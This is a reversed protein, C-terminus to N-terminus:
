ERWFRRQFLPNGPYVFCHAEDHAACFAYTQKIFTSEAESGKTGEGDESKLATLHFHMDKIYFCGYLYNYQAEYAVYQLVLTSWLEPVPLATQMKEWVAWPEKEHFGVLQCTEFGQLLAHFWLRAITQLRKQLAEPITRGQRALYSAELTFTHLVYNIFASGIPPINLSFSTRNSFIATYAKSMTHFIDLRERLPKDEADLLSTIARRWQRLKPVNRGYFPNPHSDPEEEETDTDDGSPRHRSRRREQEEMEHIDEELLRSYNQLLKEQIDM